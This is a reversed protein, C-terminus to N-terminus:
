AVALAANSVARSAIFELGAGTLLVRTGTAM